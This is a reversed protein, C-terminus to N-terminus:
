VEVMDKLEDYVVESLEISFEFHKAVDITNPRRGAMQEDLWDLVALLLDARSLNDTNNVM